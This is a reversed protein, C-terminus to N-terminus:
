PSDLVSTLLAAGVLDLINVIWNNRNEFNTTQDSTWDTYDEHQFQINEDWEGSKAM